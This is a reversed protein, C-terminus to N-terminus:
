SAAAVAADAHKGLAYKRSAKSGKAKIVGKEILSKVGMLGKGTAQTVATSLDAMPVWGERQKLAAVVAATFAGPSLRSAPQPGRLKRPKGNPAQPAPAVQVLHYRAKTGTGVIKV